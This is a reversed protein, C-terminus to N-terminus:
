DAFKKDLRRLHQPITITTALFVVANLSIERLSKRLRDVVAIGDVSDDLLSFCASGSGTLQCRPLKCRWMQDLLDKVMPSLNIAPDTLRNVMERGMTDINGVALAGAMADASTPVGPVVCSRYVQATSLSTAPYAVLLKLPRAMALPTLLDGRGTARIAGITRCAIDTGERATQPGLFFPVDSGIQAAVDWLRQDDDALGLLAASARIAAAADSSAGGMGAGAPIRKRILVQFSPTVGVLECTSQIARYVLNRDDSPIDILHAAEDGGLASLWADRSPSWRTEIEVGNRHVRTVVLTDFRDIPVMVTDIDHYGDTRRAVLELFLNLKAPARVVVSTPHTM